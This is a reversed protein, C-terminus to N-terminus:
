GFLFKKSAAYVQDNGIIYFIDDVDFTAHPGPSIITNEGRRIAIVTGGTNHWFQVEAVTKGIVLTDSTIKIEFPTFPNLNKLRESTDVLFQVKKLMDATEKMQKGAWTVLENKAISLDMVENYRKVFEQAKLISKVQIGSGKEIELIGVDKLLHMAKRITEPSVKYQSSLVSRGFLKQGEIYTGNAIDKAIDIAIQRYVAVVVNQGKSM